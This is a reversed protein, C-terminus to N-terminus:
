VVPDGVLPAAAPDPDPAQYAEAGAAIAPEAAETQAVAPVIALAQNNGVRHGIVRVLAPKNGTGPAAEHAFRQAAFKSHRITIQEFNEV